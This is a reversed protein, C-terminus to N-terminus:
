GLGKTGERSTVSTSAISLAWSVFPAVDHVRVCGLRLGVAGRVYGVAVFQACADIDQLRAEALDPGVVREHLEDAADCVCNLAHRGLVAAHGLLEQREILLETDHELHRATEAGDLTFVIHQVEEDATKAAAKGPAHDRYRLRIGVSLKSWVLATVIARAPYRFEDPPGHLVSLNQHFRRRLSRRALRSAPSERTHASTRVLGTSPCANRALSM